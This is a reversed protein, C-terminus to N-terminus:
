RWLVAVGIAIVSSILVGWFMSDKIGKKRSMEVMGLIILGLLLKVGIKGHDVKNALDAKNAMYIMEKVGVLVLGLVFAMRAGWVTSTTIRKETVGLQTLIGGLLAAWSIFHVIKLVLRLQDM